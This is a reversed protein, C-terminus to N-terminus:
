MNRSLQHYGAPMPNVPMNRLLTILELDGSRVAKGEEGDEHASTGTLENWCQRHKRM